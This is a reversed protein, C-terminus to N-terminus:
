KFKFPQLNKREIFYNRHNNTIVTAHQMSGAVCKKDQLKTKIEDAKQSNSYIASMLERVNMSKLSPDAQKFFARKDPLNKQGCCGIGGSKYDFGDSTLTWNFLILERFLSQSLDDLANIFNEALSEMEDKDKKCLDQEEIYSKCIDAVLTNVHDEYTLITLENAIDYSSFIIDEKQNFKKSWEDLKETMGQLTDIDRNEEKKIFTVGHGGRHLPVGFHCAVKMTTPLLVGNKSHNINYGLFLALHQYKLKQAMSASTVLHHAEVGNRENKDYKNTKESELYFPHKKFTKHYHLNVVNGGLTPGHGVPYGEQIRGRKHTKSKATFEKNCVPCTLPDKWKGSKNRPM